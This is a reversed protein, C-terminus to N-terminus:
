ITIVFGFGGGHTKEVHDAEWITESTTTDVMKLKAGVAVNSYLGVFVKSCKTIIGYFLADVKLIRGLQYPDISEIGSIDIEAMKLLHDVEDLRIVTYGKTSLNATLSTRLISEIAPNETLNKFGLVAVREIKHSAPPNLETVNPLIKEQYYNCSAISLILFLVSFVAFSSKGSFVYSYLSIM